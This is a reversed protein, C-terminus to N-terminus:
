EELNICEKKTISYLYLDDDIIDSEKIINDTKMGVSEYLSIGFKNNTLVYLWIDNLKLTNFVYDFLGLMSEKGYGNGKKTIVIRKLELNNNKKDKIIIIFGATENSKKEKILM